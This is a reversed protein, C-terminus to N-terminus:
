ERMALGKEKIVYRISVEDKTLPKGHTFDFRLRDNAVLSGAQVIHEGLEARLAAQLLHTATHHAAAGRRSVRDVSASVTENVDPLANLDGEVLVAIGNEFPKCVHLVRFSEKQATTLVGRDSQQGGGEPYLPCSSLCVWTTGTQNGPTKALIKTASEDLLSHGTFASTHGQGAWARVEQTPELPGGTGDNSWSANASSRARQAEMHVHFADLDVKMGREDAARLTLDVPFGFTDYMKFVFAGDVTQGPAGSDLHSVLHDMGEDLTRFFNTEESEVVAAIAARRESLEPYPNTEAFTTELTPLLDGLFPDRLGVSHGFGIARRLIRRLVYGRGVNSPVVGDGILFAAARVHDAAIKAFVLDSKSKNPTLAFAQEVLPALLDTEYNTKAGQLVSCIRELGMGTDVCPSPLPDLGGDGNAQFQMFVLNWIELYRDDDDAELDGTDFFIESCPGCPVGKGDGMSWFNDEKGLRRIPGAEAPLIKKWLEASEDDEHFVTVSLRHAPLDLDERVFKWAKHIAEEKFYDGFSFNGLMEFFTHHRATYGVNDLDNHKGGARLCKQCSVARQYPRQDRGLFVEKFPVMGANTFLLSGDGSDPVLSSSAVRTHGDKEFSSLFKERM